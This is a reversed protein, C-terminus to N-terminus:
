LKIVIGNPKKGVKINKILKHQMVDVVSVSAAEQNTIYATMDKFAIAHAGAATSIAGSRVMKGTADKTWWHVKGATPDTVWMEKMDANYAVFGPMFGLTVTEVVNLTKVDIISVTQGDENDVYMRGDTGVWAGVPNKGVPITAMIAKTNPNIATVTNSGGNAVFAVSGDASFTIEAPEKGVSITNKLTYSTADYILVKGNNDMQSTWIEKGDPSYIANHNMGISDFVKINVGKTADLVAVKGVMGMTNVTHGASLDMGPAAISIQTKSPNLYIHHPYALSKGMNMGAMQTGTNDTLQITSAVENSNLNIVSLTSSEGNVVYAAPYNINLEPQFNDMKMCSSIMISLSVIALKKM